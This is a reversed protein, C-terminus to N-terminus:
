TRWWPLFEYGRKGLLRILTSKQRPGLFRRYISPRRKLLGSLRFEDITERLWAQHRREAEVAERKAIDGEIRRLEV